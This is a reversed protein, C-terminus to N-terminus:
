IESLMVFASAHDKLWSSDRQFHQLLVRAVEPPCSIREFMQIKDVGPIFGRSAETQLFKWAKLLAERGDIVVTTQDPQSIIVEFTTM